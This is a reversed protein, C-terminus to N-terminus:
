ASEGETLLSFKLKIESDYSCNRCKVQYSKNLKFNTRDVFGLANTRCAPCFFHNDINRVTTVTVNVRDEVVSVSSFDEFLELQQM